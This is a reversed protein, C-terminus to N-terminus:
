GTLRGILMRLFRERDVELAVKANPHFVSEAPAAAADAMPPSKRM